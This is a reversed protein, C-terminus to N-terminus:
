RSKAGSIPNSTIPAGGLAISAISQMGSSGPDFYASHGSGSSPFVTAGFSKTTPDPGLVPAASVPDSGTGVKYVASVLNPETIPRLPSVRKVGPIKNLVAAGAGLGLIPALMPNLVVAAGAAAGKTKDALSVDAGTRSAYLQVHPSGLETRNKADMGPSGLVVVRDADLGATMAHGVVATGYSHAVVTITAKTGTGAVAAVDQRLTIGGAQAHGNSSADYLESLRDSRYGLWMVVAVTEGPKARSVIENYLDNSRPRLDRNVNSLENTMGPVFFVIHTATALDGKVEVIRGRDGTEYRLLKWGDRQTPLTSDTNRASSLSAIAQRNWGDVLSGMDARRFGDATQRVHEFFSRQQASLVTLADVPPLLHAISPEQCTRRATEFSENLQRVLLSIERHLASDHRAFGDLREPRCSVRFASRTSVSM